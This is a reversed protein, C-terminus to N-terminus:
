DTQSQMARDGDRDRDRDRDAEIDALLDMGLAHAQVARLREVVEECPMDILHGADTASQGATFIVTQSDSVSRVVAVLDSEVYVGDFDILM